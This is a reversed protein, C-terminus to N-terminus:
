SEYWKSREIDKFSVADICIVVKSGVEEIYQRIGETSTRPDVMNSIAGIKNLGYFSYITEPISVACITVIEDQKIGISSFANAALDINKFLKGFTITKGFYVLATNDLYDKNNEWLYEYITCEPLPANIAEESYYKLWPKDVSPYGTLNKETTNTNM